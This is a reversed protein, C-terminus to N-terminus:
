KFNCTFFVFIPYDSLGRLPTSINTESVSIIFVLLTLHYEEPVHVSYLYGQQLLSLCLLLYHPLQQLCSASATSSIHPALFQAQAMMPALQGTVQHNM